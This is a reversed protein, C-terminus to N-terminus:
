QLMNVILISLKYASKYEESQICIRCFNFFYSKDINYNGKVGDFLSILYDGSFINDQPCALFQM